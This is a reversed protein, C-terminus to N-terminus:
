RTAGARKTRRARRARLTTAIWIASGLLAAIAVAYFCWAPAEWRGRAIGPEPREVTEGDGPAAQLAVGPLDNFVSIPDGLRWSALTPPALNRANEYM